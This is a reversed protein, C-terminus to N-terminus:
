KKEIELIFYKEDTSLWSKKISFTNDKKLVQDLQNGSKLVILLSNKSLEDQLLQSTENETMLDNILVTKNSKSYLLSYYSNDWGMFDIIVGQNPKAISNCKEVAEVIERNKLRPIPAIGNMPYVLSLCLTLIISSYAFERKKWEVQNILPLLLILLGASFRHHLMLDGNVAQYIMIAVYALPLIISFKDIAQRSKKQAVWLLWVIPGTAILISFPFFWLRRGLIEPDSEFQMGMHDETWASNGHIGYFLDGTSYYQSIMWIVPFLASVAGFLLFNIIEKKFLFYTGLLASLLWAEYRFSCAITMMLGTWIIDVSHKNPRTLFYLAAPLLLLLFSEALPTNGLRLVLPSFSFLLATILAKQHNSNNKMWAYVPFFALWSVVIHILIPFLTKNSSIFTGIGLVYFHAPPWITDSIWGPNKAWDFSFLIRSVADADTVEVFPWLMLKVVLLVLAAALVQQKETLSKM